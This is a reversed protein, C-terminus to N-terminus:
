ANVESLVSKSSEGESSMTTDTMRRVADLIDLLFDRDCRSFARM